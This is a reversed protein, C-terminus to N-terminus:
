SFTVGTTSLLSSGIAGGFSFDADFTPFIVVGGFDSTAELTLFSTAGGFGFGLEEDFTSFVTGGLDSDTEM